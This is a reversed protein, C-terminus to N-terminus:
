RRRRLMKWGRFGLYATGLGGAVLLAKEGGTLTKGGAKAADEASRQSILLRGRAQTARLASIASQSRVRGTLRGGSGFFHDLKVDYDSFTKVFGHDKNFDGVIDYGSSACNGSWVVAAGGSHGSGLCTPAHYAVLDALFAPTWTGPLMRALASTRRANSQCFSWCLDVLMPMMSRGADGIARQEVEVRPDNVCSCIAKAYKWMRRQAEPPIGLTPDNYKARLSALVANYEARNKWLVGETEGGCLAVFPMPGCWPIAIAGNRAAQAVHMAYATGRFTDAISKVVDGTSEVYYTARV